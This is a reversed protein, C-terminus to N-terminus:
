ILGIGSFQRGTDQSRRFSYFRNEDQYTDYSLLDVVGVGSLKLKIGVYSPLDFMFHGERQATKFFVENGVSEELFNHRFASDVEYSQPGICPGVAARIQFPMAGLDEMAEVTAAIVNGLAGRWGAHAAGVVGAVPDVFLVPTCDATIVAIVVDKRKTVLADAEPRSEDQWLVDGVTIVDDSHIQKCRLVPKGFVAEVDTMKYDRPFFGHQVSTCSQLLQSTICM